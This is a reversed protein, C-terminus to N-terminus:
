EVGKPTEAPPPLPTSWVLYHVGKRVTGDSRTVTYTTSGDENPFSRLCPDLGKLREMDRITLTFTMGKRRSVLAVFAIMALGEINAVEEHTAPVVRETM